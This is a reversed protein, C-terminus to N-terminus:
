ELGIKEIRVDTKATIVQIADKIKVEICLSADSVIAGIIRATRAIALKIIVIIPLFDALLM